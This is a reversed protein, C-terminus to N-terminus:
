HWPSSVVLEILKSASWRRVPGDASKLVEMGADRVLSSIPVVLALALLGFLLGRLPWQWPGLQFTLQSRPTAPRDHRAVYGLVVLSSVFALVLLTLGQPLSAAGADGVPGAPDLLPLTVYIEEAFTRVQYLDTVTMDNVALVCVWWAAVGFAGRSMPLTVNLVVRAPSMDLLALEELEAPVQQLGAGVIVAVWPMAAIGHIWAAATLQWFPSSPIAGLWSQRGLWGDWGAAQLYIPLFLLAVLLSWATRRGGIDTRHILIALVTGAPLGVLCSGAALSVTNTLLTWTRVDMEWAVLAALTVALLAAATWRISLPTPNVVSWFVSRDDACCNPLIGHAQM